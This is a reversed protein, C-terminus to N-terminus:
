AYHHLHYSCSMAGGHDTVESSCDNAIALYGRVPLLTENDAEVLSLPICQFPAVVATELQCLLDHFDQLPNHVAEDFLVTNISSEWAQKTGPLPVVSAIKTTLFSCSSGVLSEVHSEYVKLLCKISYRPLDDPLRQSFMTHLLPNHSHHLPHICIPPSMDTNILPVTFFKFHLDTNM